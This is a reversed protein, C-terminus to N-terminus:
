HRRRLVGLISEKAQRTYPINNEAHGALVYMNGMLMCWYARYHPFIIRLLHVM